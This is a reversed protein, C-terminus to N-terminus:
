AVQRAPAGDGPAAAVPRAVAQLEAASRPVPPAAAEVRASWRPLLVRVLLWFAVLAVPIPVLLSLATFLNTM